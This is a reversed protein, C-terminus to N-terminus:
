RASSGLVSEQFKTSAEDPKVNSSLEYGLWNMLSGWANEIEAVSDASLGSQWGGSKASRVFPIDKRTEKTLSWVNAQAKELERMKDASSREVAQAIRQPQPDINLFPAVRALEREPHAVMDEYRLLLFGPRGHRTALWSSVNEGWSGYVFPWTTDGAIFRSVFREPPYDDGILKRKRHFHFQSLAVDRPDRVIYIVRLWTPNFYEHSKIIRPRPARALRRRSLAVSDPILTEINSFNAPTEPYALNAVLFRTWTNGSKPYSVIFTDDPCVAVNRGPHDLRFLLKFGGVARKLIRL